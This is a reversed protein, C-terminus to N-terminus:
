RGRRRRRGSTNGATSTPEAKEHSYAYCPPTAESYTNFPSYYCAGQSTLSWDKFRQMGQELTTVGELVADPIHWPKYWASLIKKIGELTLPSGICGVNKHQAGEPADPACFIADAPIETKPGYAALLASISDDQHTTLLPTLEQLRSRAKEFLATVRRQEELLAARFVKPDHQQEKPIYAAGHAIINQMLQAKVVEPDRLMMTLSFELTRVLQRLNDPNSDKDSPCSARVHDKTNIILDIIMEPSVLGLRPQKTVSCDYTLFMNTVVNRKQMLYAKLSDVNETMLGNEQDIHINFGAAHQRRSLNTMMAPLIGQANAQENLAKIIDDFIRKGGNQSFTLLPLHPRRLAGVWSILMEVHKIPDIGFIELMSYQGIGIRSSRVEGTPSTTDRNYVLGSLQGYRYGKYALFLLGGLGALEAIKGYLGLTNTTQEIIGPTAAERNTDSPLARGSPLTNSSLTTPLASQTAAPPSSPLPLQHPIPEQASLDFALRAAAVIAASQSTIIRPLTLM